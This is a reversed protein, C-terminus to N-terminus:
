GAWIMWNSKFVRISNTFSRVIGNDEDAQERREPGFMARPVVGGVLLVTGKNLRKGVTLPRYCALV